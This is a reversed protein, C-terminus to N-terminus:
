CVFNTGWKVWAFTPSSLTFPAITQCFTLILRTVQRKGAKEANCMNKLADNMVSMRVMKLTPEIDDFCVCVLPLYVSTPTPFYIEFSFTQWFRAHTYDILLLGVRALGTM